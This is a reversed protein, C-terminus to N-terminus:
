TTTNTETYNPNGLFCLQERKGVTHSHDLNKGKEQLSPSSWCLHSHTQQSMKQPNKKKKWRKVRQNSIANPFDIFSSFLWFTGWSMKFPPPTQSYTPVPSLWDVKPIASQDLTHICKLLQSMQMGHGFQLCHLQWWSCILFLPFQSKLPWWSPTQFKRFLFKNVLFSCALTHAKCHLFCSM